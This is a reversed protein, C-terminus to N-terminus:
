RALMRMITLLDSGDGYTFNAFVWKGLELSLEATLVPHTSRRGRCVSHIAAQASRGAHKVTGVVYRACPDQAHTFPDFDLRSPEGPAGAWAISDDRFAAVLRRSLSSPRQDLAAFLAPSDKRARAIPVYWDYFAQVRRALSDALPDPQQSPATGAGVFLLLAAFVFRSAHGAPHSSARM